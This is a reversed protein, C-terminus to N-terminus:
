KSTAETFPGSNHTTLQERVKVGSILGVDTQARIALSAAQGAAEGLAMATATVRSSASAETSASHCRGAVLLNSIKQPILTRYSIDYPAPQFGSGTFPKDLSTEPPHIDLFWCGTAIADDYRNTKQLDELSLVHQGIIRRTDRVGIFPGSMIYYSNEFGPVKSKWENFITWADRRGQIEARTFDAADTANAPVRTAHVYGEDKAFAFILGPGYFQPLKGERHADILVQKALPKTQEVPVVNGIRFHMTLPMLPTSSITPCGAWNAIDGDGTCDIVQRAEIRTLGDKNAVIVANVRQSRVEVDCAVTHYLVSLRDRHDLILQDTLIKFEEVNPIWVSGWYRTILDPRLDDIHNAKDRAVGLRQLLELAIGKVVFRGSPKDILGDFYPLGVTTIIGGSFGAREILLTQAGSRASALAAAIGACGGGCVLTETQITKM